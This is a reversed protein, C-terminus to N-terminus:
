IRRLIIIVCIANINSILKCFSGFLNFICVWFHNHGIEIFNFIFMLYIVLVIDQHPFKSVINGMFQDFKPNSKCFHQVSFLLKIDLKIMDEFSEM